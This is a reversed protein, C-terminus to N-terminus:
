QNTRPPKAKYDTLSMRTNDIFFSTLNGSLIINVACAYSIKAATKSPATTTCPSLYNDYNTFNNVISLEKNQYTHDHLLNLSVKELFVQRRFHGQMRYNSGFQRLGAFDQTTSTRDPHSIFNNDRPRHKKRIRHREGARGGAATPARAPADCGAWGGSM